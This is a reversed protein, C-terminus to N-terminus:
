SKEKLNNLTTEVRDVRHSLGDIKDNIQQTLVQSVKESAEIKVKLIEFRDDFSKESADIKSELTKFQDDFSKKSAEIKVELTKFRDNFSKESADMKLQIADFKNDMQFNLWFFSIAFVVAHFNKLGLQKLNDLYEIM